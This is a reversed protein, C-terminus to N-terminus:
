TILRWAYRLRRWLPVGATYIWATRLVLELPSLDPQLRSLGELVERAERHERSMGENRAEAEDTAGQAWWRYEPTDSKPASM